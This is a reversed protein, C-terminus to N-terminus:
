FTLSGKKKLEGMFEISESTCFTKYSWHSCCMLEMVTLKMLNSEELFFIIEQDFNTESKADQINTSFSNDSILLQDLIM